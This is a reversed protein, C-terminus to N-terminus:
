IDMSKTATPKKKRAKSKRKKGDKRKPKEETAPHTMQLHKYIAALPDSQYIPHNIVMKLKNSEKLVLDNRRKCNLKLDAPESALSAKLEPFVYRVSTIEKAQETEKATEGPTSCSKSIAKEAVSAM